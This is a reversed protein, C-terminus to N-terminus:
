NVDKADAANNPNNVDFDQVWNADITCTRTNSLILDFAIGYRFDIASCYTIVSNMWKDWNNKDGTFKKPTNLKGSHSM